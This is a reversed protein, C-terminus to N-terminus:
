KAWEKRLYIVPEGVVPAGPPAKTFDDPEGKIKAAQYLMVGFLFGIGSMSLAILIFLMM